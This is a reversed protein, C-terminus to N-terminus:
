QTIITLRHDFVGFSLIREPLPTVPFVRNLIITIKRCVNIVYMVVRYLVPQYSVRPRPRIRSKMPVHSFAHQRYVPAARNVRLTHISLVTFSGPNREAGDPSRESHVQPLARSFSKHLFGTVQM